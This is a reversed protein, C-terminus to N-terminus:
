IGKGHLLAELRGEDPVHPVRQGDWWARVRGRCAPPAQVHHFGGLLGDWPDLMVQSSQDGQAEDATTRAKWAIM